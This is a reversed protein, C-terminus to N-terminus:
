VAPTPTASGDTPKSAMLDKLSSTYVYPINITFFWMKVKLKCDAKIIIKDANAAITLTSKGLKQYIDTPNFVINLGLVNTANAPISTPSNNEIKTVFTDNVYVNYVQSLINFTVDSKNTFDLYINFDLNTFSLKNLKIGKFKLVYNMLKKYQLYALAGTITVLGISGAVLYKNIKM